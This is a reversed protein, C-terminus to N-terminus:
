MRAKGNEEIKRIRNFGGIASSMIEAGSAKGGHIKEQVTYILDYYDRKDVSWGFLSSLSCLMASLVATSSSMVSEVPIDSRINMEFGNKLGFENHLHVAFKLLPVMERNEPRKEKLTKGDITAEGKGFAESNILISKDTREKSTCYTREGVSVVIGPHGYVVAHEGSFFLNGPASATAQKMYLMPIITKYLSNGPQKKPNVM